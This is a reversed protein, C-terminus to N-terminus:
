TQPTVEVIGNDADVRVWDGTHIAEFPNAELDVVLPLNQAVCSLVSLEDLEINIFAAPFKRAIRALRLMRSSGSSGKTSRFVVVKNELGQGELPNGVEVVKGTVPDFGGWFSIRTDAVLARGAGVGGVIRRCRYIRTGM